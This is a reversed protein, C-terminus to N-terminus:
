ENNTAASQPTEALSLVGSLSVPCALFRRKCANCRFLRPNKARRPIRRTKSGVLGNAARASRCSDISLCNGASEELRVSSGLM